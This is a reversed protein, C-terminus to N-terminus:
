SSIGIPAVAADVIQSTSSTSVSAPARIAVPACQKPHVAPAPDLQPPAIAQGIEEGSNVQDLNAARPIVIRQHWRRSDMAAFSTMRIAILISPVQSGFNMRTFSANAALKSLPVSTPADAAITSSPLGTTSMQAPCASLAFVRGHVRSVIALM